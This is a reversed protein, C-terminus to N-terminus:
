IDRRMSKIIEEIASLVARLISTVMTGANWAERINAVEVLRVVRATTTIVAEAIGVVHAAIM